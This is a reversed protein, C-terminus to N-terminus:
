LFLLNCTHIIDRLHLNTNNSHASVTEWLAKSDVSPFRKYFCIRFLIRRLINIFTRDTDHLTLDVHLLSQLIDLSRAAIGKAYIQAIEPRLNRLGHQCFIKVARLHKNCSRLLALSVQQIAASICVATHKICAVIQGQSINPSVNGLIRNPVGLFTSVHNM